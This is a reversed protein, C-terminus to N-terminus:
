PAIRLALLAADWQNSTETVSPDLTTNADEIRYWVSQHTSFGKIPTTAIWAGPTPTGFTNGAGDAVGFLVLDRGAPSTTVGATIAPSVVGDAIATGDGVIPLTALGSWEGVWMTNPANANPRDITVVASTGDTVGAYVELNLHVTSSALKTWVAVGGGSVTALPGSPNGGFMMLVHGSVPVSPLTASLSAGVEVHRTIQQVLVATAPAADLGRADIPADAMGDPAPRADVAVPDLECTQTAPSCVLGAPCPSTACPSGRPPQPTFCGAVGIAILARSM